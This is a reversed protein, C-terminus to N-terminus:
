YLSFVISGLLTGDAYIFVAYEGGPLTGNIAFSFSLWGNQSSRDPTQESRAIESNDTRGLVAVFDTGATLDHIRASIYITGGASASKVRNLPAGSGDVSTALAIESLVPWPTATPEAQPTGSFFRATTTAQVEPVQSQRTAEQEEYFRSEDADGTGCAALTVALLLATLLSALARRKRWDKGPHRSSCHFEFTPAASAGLDSEPSGCFM